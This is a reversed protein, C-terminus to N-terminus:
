LNPTLLINLNQLSNLDLKNSARRSFAAGLCVFSAQM